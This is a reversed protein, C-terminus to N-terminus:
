GALIIEIAGLPEVEFWPGMSDLVMTGPVDSENGPTRRADRPLNAPRTAPAATITTAGSAPSAIVAIKMRRAKPATAPAAGDSM